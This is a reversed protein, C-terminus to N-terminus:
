GSAAPMSQSRGNKSARSQGNLHRILMILASVLWFGTAMATALLSPIVLGGGDHNYIWAQDEETRVAASLAEWWSALLLSPVLVSAVALLTVVVFAARKRAMVSAVILALLGLCIPFLTFWRGLHHPAELIALFDPSM